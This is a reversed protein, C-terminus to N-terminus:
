ITLNKEKDGISEYQVYDNNFASVAKIPKYHDKKPILLFRLDRLKKDEGYNEKRIERISKYVKKPDLM